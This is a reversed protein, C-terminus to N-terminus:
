GPGWLTARDKIACWNRIHSSTTTLYSNQFMLLFNSQIEPIEPDNNRYDRVRESGLQHEINAYLATIDLTLFHVGPRWPM